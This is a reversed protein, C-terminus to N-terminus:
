HPDGGKRQLLGRGPYLLVGRARPRGARDGDPRSLASGSGEAYQSRPPSTLTFFDEDEVLDFAKTLDKEGSYLYKDGDVTFEFDTEETAKPVIKVSYGSPANDMVTEFTYHVDFRQEKGTDLVMENQANLIQEDNHTLYFTKFDETFGNTFRLLLGVAGLVLLVLLVASIVKVATNTKNKRAAM